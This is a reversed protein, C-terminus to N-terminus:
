HEYKGKKKKPLYISLTLGVFVALCALSIKWGLSFAANHYAFQVTHEGESLILGVMAEGIDVIQAEKGDM